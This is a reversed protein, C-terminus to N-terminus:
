SRRRVKLRAVEEKTDRLRDKLPELARRALLFRQQMLHTLARCAGDAYSGRQERLMVDAASLAATCEELERHNLSAFPILPGHGYGDLDDNTADIADDISDVSVDDDNEDDAFISPSAVGAASSSSSYSAVRAAFARRSASSLIQGASFNLHSSSSSDSLLALASDM